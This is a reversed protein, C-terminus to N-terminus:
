VKVNQYLYSCIRKVSFFWLTSVTEITPQSHYKKIFREFEENEIEDDKPIERNSSRIFAAHSIIEKSKTTQSKTVKVAGTTKAPGAKLEEPAKGDVYSVDAPNERPVDISLTINKAAYVAQLLLCVLLVCKM